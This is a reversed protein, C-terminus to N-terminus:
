PSPPGAVEIVTPSFDAPFKTTEDFCAEALMEATLGTTRSLDAGQMQAHAFSYGSVDDTGFDVDRLDAGRFAVSPDLRARQMLEVLSDTKANVIRRLGADLGPSFLSM